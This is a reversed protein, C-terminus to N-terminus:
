VVSKRDEIEPGDAVDFGMTRFLREVQEQARAIPHLGGSAEGRGPLTVDIAEGALKADLSRALIADKQAQLLAEVQAKAENIAAGKRPREEASLKGLSKLQETLSGSKGLYRAKVQDLDALTATATITGRAEEVILQLDDRM